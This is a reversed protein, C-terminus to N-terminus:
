DFIDDLLEIEPPRNIQLGGCIAVEPSRSQWPFFHFRSFSLLGVIAIAAILLAWFSPSIIAMSVAYSALVTTALAMVLKIPM